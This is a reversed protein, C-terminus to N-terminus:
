ILFDMLFCSLDCPSIRVGNACDISQTIRAKANKLVMKKSRVDAQKKPSDKASASTYKETTFKKSPISSLSKLNAKNTPKIPAQFAIKTAVQKVARKEPEKPTAKSALFAAPKRGEKTHVMSQKTGLANVSAKPGKDDANVLAKDKEKNVINLAKPSNQAQSPVPIVSKLKANSDKSLHAKHSDAMSPAGESIYKSKTSKATKSTSKSIGSLVHAPNPQKVMINSSPSKSPEVNVGHKNKDANVFLVGGLVLLVIFTLLFSVQKGLM